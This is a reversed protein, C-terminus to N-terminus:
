SVLCRVICSPGCPGKVRQLQTSGEPAASLTSCHRPPSRDRGNQRLNLDHHGQLNSPPLVARAVTLPGAFSITSSLGLATSTSAVVLLPSAPGGAISAAPPPTKATRTAGVAAIVAPSVACAGTM